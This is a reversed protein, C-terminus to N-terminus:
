VLAVITYITIVMAGRRHKMCCTQMWENKGQCRGLKNYLCVIWNNQIRMSYLANQSTDLERQSRARVAESLARRGGFLRSRADDSSGPFQQYSAIAKGAEGNIGWTPALLRVM